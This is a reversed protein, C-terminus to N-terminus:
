KKSQNRPTTPAGRKSRLAPLVQNMMADESATELCARAALKIQAPDTALQSAGRNATAFTTASPLTKMLISVNCTVRSHLNPTPESPPPAEQLESRPVAKGSSPAQESGIAKIEITAHGEVAFDGGTDV